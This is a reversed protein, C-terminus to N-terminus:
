LNGKEPPFGAGTHEQRDELVDLDIVLCDERSRLRCLLPSDAKRLVALVRKKRFLEELARCYAPSSNELFGIEDVVAWRNKGEMADRLAQVGFTDLVGAEPEMRGGLFRGIVRREGTRRNELFICDPPGDPKERRAYSRVGPLDCGQTLADILTTKGAGRSGTLLM